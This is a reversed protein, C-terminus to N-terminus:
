IRVGVKMGFVFTEPLNFSNIGRYFMNNSFYLNGNNYDNCKSWTLINQGFISCTMNIKQRLKFRYAINIEKLKLYTADMISYEAINYINTYYQEAPVLVDNEIYKSSANDWKVGVGVIGSTRDKTNALTGACTANRYFESYSIGGKSYDIGLTIVFKKIQVSNNFFLMYDPNSNGLLQIDSNYLPIGDEYIV